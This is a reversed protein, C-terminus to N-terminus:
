LLILSSFSAKIERSALMRILVNGKVIRGYINFILEKKKCILIACFNLVVGNVEFLVWM